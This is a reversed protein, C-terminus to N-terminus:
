SLAWRQLLAPSHEVPKVIWREDTGSVQSHFGDLSGMTPMGRRLRPFDQVVPLLGLVVTPAPPFSRGTQWVGRRL